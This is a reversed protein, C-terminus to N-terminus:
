KSVAVTRADCGQGASSDAPAAVKWLKTGRPPLRVETEASTTKEDVATWTVRLKAVVKTTTRNFATGRADEDSCSTTIASIQRRAEAANNSLEGAPEEGPIYAVECGGALLVTLGALLKMAGRM